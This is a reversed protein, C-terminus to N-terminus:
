SVYFNIVQASFLLADNASLLLAHFNSRLGCLHNLWADPPWVPRLHWPHQDLILKTKLRSSILHFQSVLGISEQLKESVVCVSLVTATLLLLLLRLSPLVSSSAGRMEVSLAVTVKVLTHTHSVTGKLALHLECKTPFVASETWNLSHSRCTRFWSWIETSGTRM